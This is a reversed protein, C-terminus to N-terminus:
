DDFGSLNEGRVIKDLMELYNGFAGSPYKHCYSKLYMRFHEFSFVELELWTPLNHFADALDYAQESREAFTLGRIDVLVLHLMRLLNRRQNDTLEKADPFSKKFVEIYNKSEM